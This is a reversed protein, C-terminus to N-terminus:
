GNLGREINKRHEVLAGPKTDFELKESDSFVHQELGQLPSVWTLERIFTTVKKVHPQITPLV